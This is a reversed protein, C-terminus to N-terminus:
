LGRKNYNEEVQGALRSVEEYARRNFSQSVALRGLAITNPLNHGHAKGLHEVYIWLKECTNAHTLYSRCKLKKM